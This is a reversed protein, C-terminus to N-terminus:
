GGVGRVWGGREGAWREEGRADRPLQTRARAHTLSHTLAHPLSHTLTHTPHDLLLRRRFVSGPSSHSSQVVQWSWPLLLLSSHTTTTLEIRSPTTRAHKSAQELCVCLRSLSLSVSPSYRSLCGLSLPPPATAGLLAGLFTPEFDVHRPSSTSRPWRSCPTLGDM